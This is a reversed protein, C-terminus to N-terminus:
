RADPDDPWANPVHRPLRGPAIAILDLRVWFDRLGIRTTSIQKGAQRLYYRQQPSVAQMAELLTARRKVEIIVLTRRKAAVIDVEGLSTPVRFGIIRYGKLMLLLAAFVEARRGQLRAAAGRARKVPGPKRVKVEGYRNTRRKQSM